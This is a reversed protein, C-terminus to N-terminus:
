MARSSASALSASGRREAPGAGPGVEHEGRVCTWSGPRVGCGGRLGDIDEDDIVLVVDAFQELERQHAHPEGAVGRARDGRRTRQEVLAAVAQAQGVHAQGVAVPQFQDLVDLRPWGPRGTATMVAKPLMSVAIRASLSPAKSKTVLGTSSLASARARGAMRELELACDLRAAAAGAPRAGSRGNARGEHLQAALGLLERAVLRRHEDM